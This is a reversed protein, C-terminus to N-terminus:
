SRLHPHLQHHCSYHVEVSCCESGVHGIIWGVRVGQLLTIHLALLVQSVLQWGVPVDVVLCRNFFASALMQSGRM